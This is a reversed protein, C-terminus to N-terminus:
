GDGPSLFGWGLGGMCFADAPRDVDPIRRWERHSWWRLVVRHGSVDFHQANNRGSAVPPIADPTDSSTHPHIRISPHPVTAAAPMPM